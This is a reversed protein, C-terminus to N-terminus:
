ETATLGTWGRKRLNDLLLAGLIILGVGGRALAQYYSLSEAPKVFYEEDLYAIGAGSRVMRNKTKVRCLKGPELLRSFGAKDSM